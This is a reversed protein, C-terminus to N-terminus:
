RADSVSTRGFLQVQHARDVNFTWPVSGCACSTVELGRRHNCAFRRCEDVVDGVCGVDDRPHDTCRALQEAASGIVQAPSGATLRRVSLSTATCACTPLWESFGWTYGEARAKAVLQAGINCAGRSTSFRFGVLFWLM